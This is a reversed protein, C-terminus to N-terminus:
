RLQKQYRIETLQRGGLEMLATRSEAKWGMAEYFQRAPSNEVFVWLIANAFGMEVLREEAKALLARGLGRRYFEPDLYISQVEGLEPADAAGVRAFGAVTGDVEVVFVQDDGLNRAWAEERRSVSLEELCADSLIGQYAAQWSRVHIKAIRSVDSSKALRVRVV